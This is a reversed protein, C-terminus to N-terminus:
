RRSAVISVLGRQSATRYEEALIREGPTEPLARGADSQFWVERLFYHQGYRQFVLKSPKDSRSSAPLPTNNLVALPILKSNRVTVFTATETARAVFYVGASMPTTGAIFDFPVVAKLQGSQANATPAGWGFLVLVASMSVLYASLRKSM